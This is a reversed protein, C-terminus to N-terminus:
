GPVSSADRDMRSQSDLCTPWSSRQTLPEVYPTQLLKACGPLAELGPKGKGCLLAVVQGWGRWLSIFLWTSTLM